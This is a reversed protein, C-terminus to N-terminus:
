NGHLMDVIGQTIGSSESGLMGMVFAIGFVMIVTTVVSLGLEMPSDQPEERAVRSGGARPAAPRAAAPAAEEELEVVDLDDDLLTDEESLQTTVMGEDDEAAESFLVEEVELVEGADAEAVSEMGLDKAVRNVDQARLRMQSGDRFARIEGASILRKLDDEEMSLKEVAKEFSFFDNEAM